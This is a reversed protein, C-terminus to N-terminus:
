GLDKAANLPFNGRVRRRDGALSAFLEELTHGRPSKGFALFNLLKLYLEVSFAACVIGPTLPSNHVRPTIAISAFCRSAANFFGGAQNLLAQDLPATGVKQLHVTTM